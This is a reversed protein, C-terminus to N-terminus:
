RTAPTPELYRPNATARVEWLQRQLEQVWWKSQYTLMVSWLLALLAVGLALLSRAAESRLQARMLLVAAVIVSLCLLGFLPVACLLLPAQTTDAGMAILIDSAENM